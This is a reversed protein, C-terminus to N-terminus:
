LYGASPDGLTTYTNDTYPFARSIEEKNNWFLDDVSRNGSYCTAPLAKESDYIVGPRSNHAQEWEIRENHIGKEIGLAYSNSYNSPDWSNVNGNSQIFTDDPLHKMNSYSFDQPNTNCNFAPIEGKGSPNWIVNLPNSLLPAIQYSATYRNEIGNVNKNLLLSHDHINSGQTELNYSLKLGNTTPETIVKYNQFKSGDPKAGNFTGPGDTNFDPKNWVNKYVVDPNQMVSNNVGTTAAGAFYSHEVASRLGYNSAGGIRVQTGNIEAYAPIFQSYLAQSKTVPAINGDYSFLTTEKTTPKVTDQLRNKFQQQGTINIQTEVTPYLDGRDTQIAYIGERNEPNHAGSSKVNGEPQPNFNNDSKSRLSLDFSSNFKEFDLSPASAGIAGMPGTGPTAADFIKSM